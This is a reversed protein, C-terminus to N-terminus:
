TSKTRKTISETANVTIKKRQRERNQTLKTKEQYGHQRNKKLKKDNM